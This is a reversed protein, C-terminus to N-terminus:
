YVECCLDAGWSITESGIKPLQKILENTLYFGCYNWEATQKYIEAITNATTCGLCLVFPREPTSSLAKVSSLIIKQAVLPKSYSLLDM